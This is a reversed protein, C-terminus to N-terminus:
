RRVLAYFTNQVLLVWCLSEAPLGSMRSWCVTTSFQKEIAWKSISFQWKRFRCFDCRAVCTCKVRLKGYLVRTRLYLYRNERHTISSIKALTMQCLLQSFGTRTKCTKNWSYLSKPTRKHFEIFINNNWGNWTPFKLGWIFTDLSLNCWSVDLTLLLKRSIQIAQLDYTVSYQKVHSGSPNPLTDPKCLM